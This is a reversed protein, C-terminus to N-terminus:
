PEVTVHVFGRDIWQRMEEVFHGRAAPNNDVIVFPHGCTLGGNIIEQGLAAHLRIDLLDVANTNKKLFRGLAILCDSPEPSQKLKALM